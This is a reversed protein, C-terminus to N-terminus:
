LGINIGVTYTRVQPYTARDVGSLLTSGGFESVEPDFGSYGTLTLLNQGSVYLMVRELGGWGGVPVSYDLRVNKLRLYSADEIFRGSPRLLSTSLRPYEANPDPNDPSWHNEYVEKLQNVGRTFSSAVFANNLNYVDRGQVGQLFLDLGFNKYSLSTSFGYTFDPQPNGLIQRDEDTIMGDDNQDVYQIRGNEDLQDQEEFGYFVPLAEGERILHINGHLSVSSGLFENGQALEQVENRNASINANVSWEFDDGQYPIGQLAFEVGRNQISGVNRLISSFGSSSPLNVIALLNSTNKVYGDATLSLRDDLVGLNVGVNYQETQEWQLEPNAINGPAFGTVSGSGITLLTPFIQQLSNYLGIDQNGTVGWSLRLKLNSITGVNEMFPEESVRWGFAASPFYGWKNGEGFRSSGDARGTVTFLYRDMLAYNIRGLGSLITWDSRDVDPPSINAGSGLSNNLLQDTVFGSASASLGSNREHQWTGGVTADIRHIDAFTRRYNLTNESLYMVEDSRGAAGSGATGGQEHRRTAYFNSETSRYDVGIRSEAVLHETLQYEAAVNEQILWSTSNNTLENIDAVPSRPFSWGIWFYDTYDFYDGNEDFVPITPPARFTSQIVNTTMGSTPVDHDESRVLTTYNSVSLRDTLDSTLNFRIRGEEFSSSRIVGEESTYSGSLRYQTDEGTWNFGLSHNQTLAQRFVEDQWDTDFQVNNPDSFPQEEGELQALENAMEAYQRSNMLDLKKSVEQVGLYSSYEIQSDSGGGDQTTILVVGNSGRAGYIATASADKLIEVSEIDSTSLYDPSGSIPFGDVVYLPDNGGRMSNSGRIRVTFSGGPSGDNQIVQVGASQGQLVEQVSTTSISEIDETSVSAISGTLDQRRTEGYGVVVVEELGSVDQQLAFDVTTSEGAEVEIGQETVNRYGIFSARVDYTGPEVNSITYGGDSGTAAGKQTGVITVNVGPLTQGSAAETVTGTIEGTQAVAELPAGLLLLSVSFLLVTLLTRLSM